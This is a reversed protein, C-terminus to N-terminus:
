YIVTDEEAEVVMEGANEDGADKPSETDINEGDGTDGNASDTHGNMPADVNTDDGNEQTHSEAAEPPPESGVMQSGNEAKEEVIETSSMPEEARDEARRREFGELEQDITAQAEDLQQNLQEEQEPLLEWPKYYLRPETKTQLFNAMSLLNSHRIRMSKEDFKKQERQRIAKLGELRERQRQSDEEAQQKLKAQQRKEIDVRRKQAASSSSQSLTGLLAGFLRQGRKREELQGSKRRSARREDEVPASGSQENSGDISLRPRKSDNESISSQRRKLSPGPSASNPAIEPADPVVIASAVIPADEAM